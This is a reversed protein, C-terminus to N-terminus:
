GGGVDGEDAGSGTQVYLGIVLAFTVLSTIAYMLGSTAAGAIVGAQQGAALAIPIGVIAQAALIVIGGVVSTIILLLLLKLTLGRSRALSRKVLTIPGGGEAASPTLFTLRATVIVMVVFVAIALVGAFAEGVPGLASLLAAGLGVLLLLLTFAVMLLLLAAFLMPFQRGARDLSARVTEGPSLLMRAITLTGLLLALTLLALAVWDIPTPAAQEMVQGMFAVPEKPANALVVQALMAPIGIVALAVTALLGFDSRLRGKAWDVAQDLSARAM